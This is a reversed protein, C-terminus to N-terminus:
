ALAPRRRGRLTAGVGGVGLLMLAWSAPEPVGALTTTSDYNDALAGGFFGLGNAGGGGVGSGYNSQYHQHAGVNPDIDLTALTGIVTVVVHASTFPTTLYGFAGNGNNGDYFAYFDFGTSNNRANNQVKIFYNAGGGYGLVAAVYSTGSTPNAIDFSVTNGAFGNFTALSEDSGYAQGGAIGSAGVQQTWDAGLGGDPRNFDDLVTAFATPGARRLFPFFHYKM